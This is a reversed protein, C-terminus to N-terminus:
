KFEETTPADSSYFTGQHVDVLFTKDTFTLDSSRSLVGVALLWSSYPRSRRPFYPIIFYKARLQMHLSVIASQIGLSRSQSKKLTAINTSGTGPMVDAVNYVIKWKGDRNYEKSKEVMESSESTFIITDVNPDRARVSEAVEMYRDLTLCKEEGAASDEITHGHCKDSARVPMAITKEPIIDYSLKQMQLKENIFEVMDVHPRWLYQLAASSWETIIKPRSVCTIEETKTTRGATSAAENAAMEREVTIQFPKTATMPWWAGEFEIVQVNPDQKSVENANRVSVLGNPNHPVQCSSIPRFYCQTNRIGCRADTLKWNRADLVLIRDTQMAYALWAQITVYLAGINRADKRGLPFRWVIYKATDCDDPNQHKWIAGVIGTGPNDATQKPWKVIDLSSDPAEDNSPDKASISGSAQPCRSGDPLASRVRTNYCITLTACVFIFGIILERPNIGAFLALKGSRRGKGRM